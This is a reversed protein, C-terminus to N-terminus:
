TIPELVLTLRADYRAGRTNELSTPRDQAGLLLLLLKLAAHGLVHPSTDLGSPAERTRELM